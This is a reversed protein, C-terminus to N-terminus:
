PNKIKYAVALIFASLFLIFLGVYASDNGAFNSMVPTRGWPGIGGSSVYPVPHIILSIGVMGAVLGGIVLGAVGTKTNKPDSM